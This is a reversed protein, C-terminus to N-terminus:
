GNNYRVHYKAYNEDYGKDFCYLGNGKRFCWNNWYKYVYRDVYLKIMKRCFWHTYMWHFQEQKKRSM